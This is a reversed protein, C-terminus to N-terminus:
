HYLFTPVGVAGKVLLRTSTSGFFYDRLGGKGFSGMVLAAPRHEEIKEEIIQGADARIQDVM